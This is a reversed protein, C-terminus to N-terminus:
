GRPNDKILKEAFEEAAERDSFGYKPTDANLGTKVTWFGASNKELKIEEGTQSHKWLTEEIKRWDGAKELSEIKSAYERSGKSAYLILEANEEAPFLIYEGGRPGKVHVRNEDRNEVTLPLKRENFLIKEGEQLNEFTKSISVM